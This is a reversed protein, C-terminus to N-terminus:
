SLFKKIQDGRGYRTLSNGELVLILGMKDSLLELSSKPWTHGPVSNLYDSVFGLFYDPLFISPEQEKTVVEVKFEKNGPITSIIQTFFAKDKEIKDSLNEFKIVFSPNAQFIKSFKIYLAKLLHPFVVKYTYSDKEQKTGPIETRTIGMYVSIPMQIIWPALSQRGSINNEQYHFKGPKNHVRVVPDLTMKRIQDALLKQSYDGQISVICVGFFGPGYSEDVLLTIKEM